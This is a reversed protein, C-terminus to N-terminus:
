IGLGEFLVIGTAGTELDATLEKISGIAIAPDLSFELRWVDRAAMAEWLKWASVQRTQPVVRVGDPRRDPDYTSDASWAPHDADGVRIRWQVPPNGSEALSLFELSRPSGMVRILAASFYIRLRPSDAAPTTPQQRKLYLPGDPKEPMPEWTEDSM